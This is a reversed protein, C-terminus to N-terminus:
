LHTAHFTFLFLLGLLWGYLLGEFGKRLGIEKIAPKFIEQYAVWLITGAAIALLVALVQDYVRETVFGLVTGVGIPLAVVVAYQVIRLLGIGTLVLPFGLAIGEPIAHIAMVLSLKWSTLSSHALSSGLAIGAPFNHFAIATAIVHASKLYDTELRVSPHLEKGHMLKGIVYIIVVGTVVGLATVFLGDVRVSTPIIDLLIISGTVGVSISIIFPIVAKKIQQLLFVLVGGIPIGIGGIVFGIMGIEMLKLITMHEERGGSHDKTRSM